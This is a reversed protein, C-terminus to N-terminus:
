SFDYYTGKLRLDEGFIEYSRSNNGMIRSFVRPGYAKNIMDEDYNSSFIIPLGRNMRENVVDFLNSEDTSRHTEAGLDDIILLDCNFILDYKDELNSRRDEFAWYYDNLFKFLKTSTMYVVSYNKDLIEKAVSNILYTKGRGVEGQIFINGNENEFNRIFKKMHGVITKMNEYPSIGYNMYPNKSFLDLNFNDFNERQIASKIGSQQYNEEIIIQMRCSCPKNKVFGTDECLPHHYKLDMYDYPFGNEEMLEKKKQRLQKLRAENQSTDQKNIALNLSEFGIKKMLRDIAEVKPIKEYVEKIAQDQRKKNERRREQLILSAKENAKM